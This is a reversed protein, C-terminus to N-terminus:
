KEKEVTQPTQREWVEEIKVGSSLTGTHYWKNGDIKWTFNQPKDRIGEVGQGVTYLPLELYTDDKLTYTGTAAMSIDKTAPDAFAWIWHTPTIHKFCILRTPTDSEQGDYKASVMKWTGILKNDEAKAGKEQSGARLVGLMAVCGLVAGM